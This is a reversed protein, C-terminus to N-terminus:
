AADSYLMGEERNEVMESPMYTVGDDVPFIVSISKAFAPTGRGRDTNACDPPSASDGVDLARSAAEYAAILTPDVKKFSDRGSDRSSPWQLTTNTSLFISLKSLIDERILSVRAADSGASCSDDRALSLTRVTPVLLVTFWLAGISIRAIM